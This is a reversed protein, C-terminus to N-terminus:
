FNRLFEASEKLGNEMEVFYNKVGGTKAAAFFEKWDVKGTGLPVMERGTGSWDYLHASIFHGPYKKFYDAANYGISIVSVQFQMKVLSPDFQKLLVDYILEGELKEFEGNHNHFGMQIGAKKSQEGLRNLEDAAKKWDSLTAEKPLGFTSVIMQKLGLAKAFDIREQAHEKMEDFGYHCSICIFGEDKIIKKLEPAKLKELPGFGMKAYGPPSCMEISNYGLGAMKKLAGPFDEEISKRVIWSQFGIPGKILLPNKGHLLGPALLAAGALAAGQSIFSRRNLQNM